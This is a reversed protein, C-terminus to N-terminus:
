LQVFFSAVILVASVLFTWFSLMNLTPFAMDQAGIQLPMTYNGFCGIMIPTIAWFIMILGHMTFISQYSAPTIIGGSRELFMGLVPVKTAPFAWQWRIMMALAGGFLLFFLGVWLFQKAIVKHDISFLYKGVFSTPEPHVHPARAVTSTDM